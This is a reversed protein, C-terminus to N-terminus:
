KLGLQKEIDTTSIGDYRESYVINIGLSEIYGDLGNFKLTEELAFVNNPKLKKIIPIYRNWLLRTKKDLNNHKRYNIIHESIIVYDVCKLNDVVESRQNENIIPRGDGKIYRGDIDNMVVVLLKESQKKANKLFNLHGVHFMDFWGACITINEGRLNVLQNFTVIM